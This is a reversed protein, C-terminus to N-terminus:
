VLPAPLRESAPAVPDPLRAKLKVAAKEVISM